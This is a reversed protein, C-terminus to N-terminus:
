RRGIAKGLVYNNLFDNKFSEGIPIEESELQVTYSDVSVIHNINVIFSRNVRAFLQPPLQAAITKINMAAIIKKDALKITVYDKLGEIFLIENFMVKTFKRDAKIFVYDQEISEITNDSIIEPQTAKLFLEAKNVAKILRELRVPKVLYDIADLEYSELAYQSYATVFIVLPKDILTKLFDLGSLGPMNIDLFVIDVKEQQLFIGADIANSFNNKIELAPINALLLALGQRALPEDDVVICTM